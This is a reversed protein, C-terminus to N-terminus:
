LATRWLSDSRGAARMNKEKWRTVQFRGIVEMVKVAGNKLSKKLKLSNKM